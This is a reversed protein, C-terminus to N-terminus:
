FTLKLSMQWSRPTDQGTISGYSGSTPDTNPDYLNPHNLANFTEARFQTNWRESIRFNKILSFDWRDQNPGRASSFRLSLRRLNSALQATGVTEFGATKAPTFWHDVSRQDEPLVLNKVDGNFIRNGFGLPAGSQHQYIGGLQWGGAVFDVAKHMGSAFHRGRGFPIEWIGSGTLRHTRDLSALSEYPMPDQSNMFETAEMAKSWTYSAQVTWANAFRREIRSQLSHYWSYGSPDGLIQVSSFQNYNRLLNARTMNAGYISNLGNYPNPFNAGLYNITAQDRVPSTSLYQAPTYSLERTVGLRTNRNGVYAAEIMFRQPLEQQIGLSWRQSYPHSRRDSFFQVQQGINTLLGNAAGAPKILGNPFPNANTALYTLGNDLSAQIPTSISFGTQNTNSYNVGISATYVGYGGRIITKPRYQYAFGIRPQFNLKEPEWFTRPNNGVGAFTLGGIAAFQSAPLEAIPNKAYNAKAADNLPNPTKGDYHIASRDFRETMPSEYEYRLGLNITLKRSLKWDDQLYLAFYKDQEVYSATTVMSGAPIGYLMSAVQGGLTPDGSTDTAKTYTANYVYQPSLGAGYRNRSERYVRFEPGFRITHNGKMKTFNGVFSNTTSATLGDQSEWQSLQSFSGVQINPIPAIKKDPLQSILNSSLGLSGLDYGQSSRREPFDQYTLGYRFNLLFSPSFVYVDDFAIGKNNRNLIVGNVDNSFNRNKDEEWYDRHLRLFVRHNESFAHDLRGIWVWYDELAKGSRYFNNRYDSTGAQNPLPYLNIFNLGVADLQSKPIINDPVATRVYRGNQLSTSRPDYVQYAAGLKLYESLDGEHMKATPVTSTINGGSDPNGFKNAEYAFFWFTRNKGDYLKPIYVPAGASAGYRNDQYISIKQRSRNQFITPADLASHRFWEHAEGHLTNTGSKTSVNVTSGMTHGLSADFAATQVKFEAIATQPPSFAVRPATGDSYTNSVGDISFENQNNGGGDTSFTSPASNFGAKRLRMNTGNVTGPALHVLDMANGAFQPLELVRREDIVQGLSAEATSLLPTTDKVEITESTAGVQLDIDVEVSDNIRVQVGQRLFKKFGTLECTITYNGTILYPLVYNGSNNTKGSVAVGTNDNTARVEANPVVAGTGDVVRGLITGRPDQASLPLLASILLLVLPLARALGTRFQHM